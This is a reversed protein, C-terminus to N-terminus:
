LFKFLPAPTLFLYAGAYDHCKIGKGKGLRGAGIGSYHCFVTTGDQRGCSVCAEMGGLLGVCRLLRWQFYALVAQLPADPQPVRALARHLLDFVEPHPDAEPLSESVLEIMYLSTNLRGADVRLDSHSVTETFEVLVGLSDTNKRIFVLDGEALLDIAGGSSSKPRKTGKGLLRVVGAGRTLFQLVQSTESYDTTRLCIGPERLRM